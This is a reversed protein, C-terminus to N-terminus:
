RSLKDIYAAEAAMRAERLGKTQGKGFNDCPEHSRADEERDEWLAKGVVKERGKQGNLFPCSDARTLIPV